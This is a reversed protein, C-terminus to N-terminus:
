TGPPRCRPRTSASSTAARWCSTSRSGLEPLYPDHVLVDLDFPALLDIVRRGIRSAGVIGVTRRYNGVGPLEAVLDM